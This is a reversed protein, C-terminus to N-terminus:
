ARVTTRQPLWPLGSWLLNPRRPQRPQALRGTRLLRSWANSSLIRFVLRDVSIFARQGLDGTDVVVVHQLLQNFELDVGLHHGGDRQHRQDRHRPGISREVGLLAIRHQRRRRCLPNSRAADLVAQQRAPQHLPRVGLQELRPLVVQAAQAALHGLGLPQSQLV